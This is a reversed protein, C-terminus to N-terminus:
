GAPSRACSRCGRPVPVRGRPTRRSSSPPSPSALARVPGPWATFSRPLCLRLGNVGDGGHVGHIGHVRTLRPSPTCHGLGLQSAFESARGVCGCGGLGTVGEVRTPTCPAKQNPNQKCAYWLCLRKYLCPVQCGVTIIVSPLSQADRCRNSPIVPGISASSTVLRGISPM